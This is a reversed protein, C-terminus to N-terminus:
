GWGLERQAEQAAWNLFTHTDTTRPDPEKSAARAVGVNALTGSAQRKASVRRQADAQARADVRGGRVFRVAADLDFTPHANLAQTVEPEIEDWDNYKAKAASVMQEAYAMALADIQGLKPGVEKQIAFNIFDALVEDGKLGPPPVYERAWKPLQKGDPATNTGAKNEGLAKMMAQFDEQYQKRAAASSEQAKRMGERLEHVRKLVAGKFEDPDDPLSELNLQKALDSDLPAPSESESADSEDVSPELDGELDMLEDAM